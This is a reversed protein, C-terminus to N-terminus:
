WNEATAKEDKVMFREFWNRLYLQVGLANHHTRFPRAAAGGAEPQMMPTEVEMFGRGQLYERVLRVIRSRKVFTDMVEDNSFLDVYRRRSRIEVDRLGHWKEPPSLIAKALM